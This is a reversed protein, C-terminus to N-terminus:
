KKHSEWIEIERRLGELATLFRPTPRFIAPHSYFVVPIGFKEWSKGIVKEALNQKSLDMAANEGAGLYLIIEPKRKLVEEKLPRPYPKRDDSYIGDLGVVKLSETLFAEKGITIIPDSEIQVFVRKRSKQIRPDQTWQGLIKEQTQCMERGREPVGLEKSISKYSECMESISRTSTLLVKVGLKGLREIQAKENGDRWALVLDPKLKMIKEFDIRVYTGVNAVDKLFRPYDTYETVGVIRTKAEKEGLIEAVIEAVNPALTVIRSPVLSLDSASCFFSFFLFSFFM